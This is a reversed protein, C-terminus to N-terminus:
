PDPDTTTPSPRRRGEGSRTGPLASLPNCAAEQTRENEEDAALIAGRARATAVV